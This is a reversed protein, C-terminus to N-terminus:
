GTVERVKAEVIRPFGAATLACSHPGGNEYVKNGLNEEVARAYPADSATVTETESVEQKWSDHLRHTKVPQGPAGTVPSGDVISTFMEADVGERVLGMNEVTKAKFRALQDAFGM